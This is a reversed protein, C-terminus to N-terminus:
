TVICTYDSFHVCEQCMLFIDSSVKCFVQWNSRFGHGQQFTVDRMSFIENEATTISGGCFVLSLRDSRLSSVTIIM